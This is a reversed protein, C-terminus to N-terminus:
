HMSQLLVAFAPTSVLSYKITPSSQLCLEEEGCPERLKRGSWLDPCAPLADQKDFKNNSLCLKNFSGGDQAVGSLGLRIM